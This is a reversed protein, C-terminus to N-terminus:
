IMLRFQDIIIKKVKQSYKNYIESVYEKENYKDITELAALFVIMYNEMWLPM